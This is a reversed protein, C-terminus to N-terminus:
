SPLGPPFATAQSHPELLLGYADRHSVDPLRVVALDAMKGLTISGTRASLGLAGAGSSTALRLLTESAVQPFQRRLFQVEGWLNLDPNSARSDTGLCVSAGANLLRLWPHERRRFYHHTRPCYVVTMQPHNGLYEIEEDDLYNGHVVLVNDVDQLMHLFDLPRRGVEFNAPDWEGFAQLMESLEGTGSSLLQREAETEALHIAIPCREDQALRSAFDLLDRRVTYPTHPSLGRRLRSAEENPARAVHTEAIQRQDAARQETLGLLERFMVVSLRPDAYVASDHDETAIEGILTTGNQRCEDIGQKIVEPTQTERSRRHQVVSKIWSSFPEAPRIPESLDSFELHTHTNVLGPILAVNGLDVADPDSKDSLGVIVGDGVEVLGNEIPDADGPFVWRARFRGSEVSM